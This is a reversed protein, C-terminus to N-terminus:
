PEMEEAKEVRRRYPGYPAKGTGPGRQSAMLRLQEYHALMRKVAVEQERGGVLQPAGWAEQVVKAKSYGCWCYEEVVIGQSSVVRRVSVGRRCKPCM